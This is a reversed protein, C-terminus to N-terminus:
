KQTRTVHQKIKEFTIPSIVHEIRCADALATESDVGLAIFYEMLLQHREYITEAIKRGSQTLHIRNDADMTILGDKRFKKMAASISPKSFNTERVVDISYVSGKRKELILITELYNEASESVKM